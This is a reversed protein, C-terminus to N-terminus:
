FDIQLMSSFAPTVRFGIERAPIMEIRGIKDGTSTYMISLKNEGYVYSRGLWLTGKLVFSFKRKGFILRVDPGGIKFRQSSNRDFNELQVSESNFEISEDALGDGNFDINRMYFLTGSSEGYRGIIDGRKEKEVICGIYAGASLTFAPRIKFERQYAGMAGVNLVEAYIGGYNGKKDVFGYEIPFFNLVKDDFELEVSDIIKGYINPIGVFHKENDISNTALQGGVLLRKHYERGKHQRKGAFLSTCCVLLLLSIVKNM